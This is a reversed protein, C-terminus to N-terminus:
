ALWYRAQRTSDRIATDLFPLRSIADSHQSDGLNRARITSITLPIERPAAIQWAIPFMGGIRCRFSFSAGPLPALRLDAGLFHAFMSPM